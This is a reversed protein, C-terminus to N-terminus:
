LLRSNHFGGSPTVTLSQYQPQSEYETLEGSLCDIKFLFDSTLVLVNRYKKSFAVARPHERFEGCWESFDENEFKVWTWHQSNWPSSIDYIREKYQGSYPQDIIEVKTILKNTRWLFPYEYILIGYM